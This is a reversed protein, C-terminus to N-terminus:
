GCDQKEQIGAPNTNGIEGPDASEAPLTIWTTRGTRLDSERTTAWHGAGSRLVSFFRSSKAADLLTLQHCVVGPSCRQSVCNSDEFRRDQQLAVIM